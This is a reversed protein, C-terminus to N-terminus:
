VVRHAPAFYPREVYNELHAPVNSDLYGTEIYAMSDCRSRYHSRGIDLASYEKYTTTDFVDRTHAFPEYAPNAHQRPTIIIHHSSIRPQECYDEEAYISNLQALAAATLPLRSTIEVNQAASHRAKSTPLQATGRRARHLQNTTPDPPADVVSDQRGHRTDSDSRPTVAASCYEDGVGLSLDIYGQMVDELQDHLEQIMPSLAGGNMQNPDPSHTRRNSASPMASTQFQAQIIVTEFAVVRNRHEHSHCTL